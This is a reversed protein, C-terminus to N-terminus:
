GNEESDPAIERSKRVLEVLAAKPRLVVPEAAWELGHRAAENTAAELLATAKTAPLNFPEVKGNALVREFALKKPALDCRSRLSYGRELQLTMAALGLAALATRAANEREPNPKNAGDPFRLKRLAPLSLVTTQLAYAMTVGGALIEGRDNRAVDPTVKGHNIESPKGKNKDAKKGRTYKAPNGKSDREAKAEDVTWESAAAHEKNARYLDVLTIGLPDLRGGTRVGVVARVAVIESVMSRAFRNGRGGRAGTSDWAGFLLATPCFEFLAVADRITAASVRRGIDTDPFPTEGLLSDRIIADFIRHPVDLTSYSRPEEPMDTSFDVTIMPLRIKGATHAEKLAEELRNAQSQVSDLLIARVIRGKIRRQEIAYTSGAYTPPFVKDGVGGAPQLRVRLRLAADTGAVADRLRDLDLTPVQATPM